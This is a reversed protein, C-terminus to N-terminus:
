NESVRQDPNSQIQNQLRGGVTTLLESTKIKIRDILTPQGALAIKILRTKEAERYLDERRAKAIEDYNTPFM